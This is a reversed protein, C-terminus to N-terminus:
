LAFFSWADPQRRQSITTPLSNHQRGHADMARVPYIIADIKYRQPDLFIAPTTTVFRPREDLQASLLGVPPRDSSALRESFPLKSSTIFAM